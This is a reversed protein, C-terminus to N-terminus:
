LAPAPPPVGLLWVVGDTAPGVAADAEGSLLSWATDALMPATVGTIDARILLMPLAATAYADAFAGAVREGFDGPRPRIVDFGAPTRDGPALTAVLVRRVAPTAAAAALADRGSPGAADPSWPSVAVLQVALPSVDSEM